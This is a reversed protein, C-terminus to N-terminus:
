NACAKLVVSEDAAVMRDGPPDDRPERGLHLLRIARRDDGPLRIARRRPCRHRQVRLDVRRGQRGLIRHQTLLPSIRRGEIDLKLIDIRPFGHDRMLQEITVAEIDFDEGDVERVRYGEATAGREVALKAATPWLGRCVTKVQPDDRFNRALVAYNEAAPEVAVIAAQPHFHRFRLTEDGINAGADIIYQV